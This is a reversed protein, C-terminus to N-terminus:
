PISEHYLKNTLGLLAFDSLVNAKFFARRRM